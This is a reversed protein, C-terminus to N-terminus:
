TLLLFTSTSPFTHVPFQGTPFHADSPRATSNVTVQKTIQINNSSVIHDSTRQSKYDVAREAARTHRMYSYYYHYVLIIYVV